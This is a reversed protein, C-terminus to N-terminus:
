KGDRGVTSNYSPIRVRYAVTASSSPAVAIDIEAKDAAAPSYHWTLCFQLKQNNSIYILREIRRQTKRSKAYSSGSSVANAPFPTAVPSAVPTPPIPTQYTAARVLLLHIAAGIPKNAPFNTSQLLILHHSHCCHHSLTPYPRLPFVCRFM